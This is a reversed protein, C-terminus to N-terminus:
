DVGFLGYVLNYMMDVGEMIEPPLSDTLTDGDVHTRKSNLIYYTLHFSSLLLQQPWESGYTTQLHQVFKDTEISNRM